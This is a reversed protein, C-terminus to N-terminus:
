AWPAQKLGYLAKKFKCVYHSVDLHNFGYSLKMYAEETLLGPLFMNKIDLQRISWYSSLALFLILHVTTPKVIPCFTEHYYIRVQQHFRQAVM